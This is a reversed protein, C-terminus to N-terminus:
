KKLTVRKGRPGKRTRANTKTRQGRLPLGNKHRIGRYCGIDRLRKIALQVERRLEGELRFKGSEEALRLVQEESLASVKTTSDVNASKCISYSRTRGIGYIDTLAIWIHKGQNLPVGQIRVTAM